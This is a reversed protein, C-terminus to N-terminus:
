NAKVVIAAVSVEDPGSTTQLRRGTALDYLGIHLDYDGAAVNNPLRIMQRDIITKGPQWETMPYAGNDPQSDRQAVLKGQADVLHNFVTLDTTPVATTRWFLTLTLSEGAAVPEPEVTYGILEIGGAFMVSRPHQMSPDPRHKFLYVKQSQAVQEVSRSRQVKALSRTDDDSWWAWAGADVLVYDADRWNVPFWYVNPRGAFHSGLFFEVSLSANNPIEAQVQSILAAKETDVDYAPPWVNRSFPFPGFLFIGAIATLPLVVLAARAAAGRMRKQWFALSQVLGLFAALVYAWAHWSGYELPISYGVTLAAIGILLEPLAILWALGGLVPLFALPILVAAALELVAQVIPQFAEPHQAAALWTQLAAFYYPSRGGGALPIILLTSVGWAAGAVLVLLLSHRRWDPQSIALYLGIAAATIAVSEVTSLALLAMLWFARARRLDAFYLLAFLFLPAFNDLHVGYVYSGLTAIQVSPHLLYLVAVTAALWENGIRRRAFLFLPLAALGVAAANLVFLSHPTRFLAYLPLFIPLLLYVHESLLSREEWGGYFLQSVSTNPVYGQRVMFPEGRLISELAQQFFGLDRLGMRFAEYLRFQMFSFLAVYTVAAALVALFPARSRFRRASPKEEM